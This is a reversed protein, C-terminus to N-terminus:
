IVFLISFIWLKGIWMMVYFCQSLQTITLKVHEGGANYIWPPTFSRVIFIVNAAQGSLVINQFLFLSHNTSSCLKSIFTVTDKLQAVHRQMYVQKLSSASYFFLYCLDVIFCADKDDWWCCCFYSTRAMIFSFYQDSPTLSCESMRELNLLEDSKLKMFSKATM